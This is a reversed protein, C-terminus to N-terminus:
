MRKYEELLAKLIEGKEHAGTIKEILTASEPQRAMFVVEMAAGYKKYAEEIASNVIKWSLEDNKAYYYVPLLAGNYRAILLASTIKGSEVSIRSLDIDLTSGFGEPPYTFLAASMNSLKDLAKRQEEGSMESLPIFSGNGSSKHGQAKLRLTELSLYMDACISDSESFLREEFYTKAGKLLPEKEYDPSIVAKLIPINFADALKFASDLLEEGHGEFQHEPKILLWEIIIQEMCITGVLLGIPELSYEHRRLAGLAFGYPMNILGLKEYPDLDKFYAADGGTLRIYKYKGESLDPM